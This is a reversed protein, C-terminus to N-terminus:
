APWRLLRAHIRWEGEVAGATMTGGTLHVRETLGLLGHGTSDPNTVTTTGLPNTLDVTITSATAGLSIVCHAFPPAYRMMNTTGERLIRSITRQTTPDCQDVTADVGLDVTRGSRRVTDAVADATGSPTSWSGEAGPLVDTARDEQDRMLTVLTQLDAEASENMRAVERATDRLVDPDESGAHAAVHLSMLSLQHAVIDHLEGALQRREGERAQEQEAALRTLEAIQTRRTSAFHHVALGLLPGMTGYVFLAIVVSPQLAGRGWALIYVLWAALCGFLWGPRRAVVLATLAIVQLQAPQGVETTPTTVALSALLGAALVGAALGPSRTALAIAAWTLAWLAAPTPDGGARLIALAQASHHVTGVLGVLLVALAINLRIRALRRLAPATTPNEPAVEPMPVLARLTWREGDSEARLTGGLSAIAEGLARWEVTEVLSGVPGDHAMELSAWAAHVSLALTCPAGPTGETDVQRVGYALVRGLLDVPLNRPWEAPLSLEVPHGHAVLADEAEEVAAVLTSTDSATDSAPTTTRLNAVLGRLRALGLRSSAEVRALAAAIAPANGTVAITALESRNQNLGDVLLHSLEGALAGREDSRVEQITRELTAIQRSAALSRRHLARVALGIAAGLGLLGFEVGLSGPTARAVSISVIVAAYVTLSAVVRRWPVTAAVVVTCLFMPTLGQGFQGWLLVSALPVLSVAVGAVPRWLALTVVIAGLLSLGIHVGAPSPPHLAVSLLELAALVVVLARAVALPRSSPADAGRAIGTPAM